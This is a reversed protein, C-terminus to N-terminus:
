LIETSVNQDDRISAHPQIGIIITVCTVSMKKCHYPHKTVTRACEQMLRRLYSDAYRNKDGTLKRLASVVAALFSSVKDVELSLLELYEQAANLYSM